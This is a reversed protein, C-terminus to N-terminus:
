GQLHQHPQLAWVPTQGLLAPLMTGSQSAVLPLSNAAWALSLGPQATMSGSSGRERPCGQYELKTTCVGLHRSLQM